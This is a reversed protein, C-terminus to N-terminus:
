MCIGVSCILIVWYHRSLVDVSVFYIQSRNHNLVKFELATLFCQNHIVEVQIPPLAFALDERNENKYKQRCVLPGELEASGWFLMRSRAM